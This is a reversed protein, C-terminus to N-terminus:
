SEGGVASVAAIPAGTPDPATTPKRILGALLSGFRETVPGRDYDRKALQRARASMKKVEEPHSLFWEIGRVLAAANGFEIVRGIGERATVAALESDPAAATLVATGSALIGYLKSPMLLRTLNPDLVVLHVDAASLSLHLQDKPQYPLFRLNTLNKQRALAELSPRTAGDGVLLFFVEARTALAAAAEIVVELRQSLGMNGSYMVVFRGDLGNAHRFANQEKVPIIAKTDTWNPIRAIRKPDVRHETLWQQMDASLVVVCDASRYVAVFWRRLLRVFAGEHLKDLAVAVDPYIDQLYVVLRCGHWWRLLAGLLCLLPPDTEVVVISPSPVRLAVWAASWLFTLLNVARGVLSRKPFRTHRVRHIGIGAHEDAGHPNFPVGTPNQNPQGCIVRVQYTHSLDECLETLLQGTAEADPYFSRNLFLVTPRLDELSPKSLPLAMARFPKPEPPAEAAVM